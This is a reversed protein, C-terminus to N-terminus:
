KTLSWILSIIWGIITWGTLLNLALIAEANKHKRQYATIAPLCYILVIIITLAITYGM